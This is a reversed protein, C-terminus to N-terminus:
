WALGAAACLAQYNWVQFSSSTPKNGEQKSIATGVLAMRDPTLELRWFPQRIPPALLDDVRDDILNAFKVKGELGAFLIRKGAPDLPVAYIIQDDPTGDERTLPEAGIFVLPDLANMDQATLVKAWELVCLGATTGCILHNGSPGMSMSFVSQKPLFHHAMQATAQKLDEKSLHGQVEGLFRQAIGSSAAYELLSRKPGPPEPIWVSKLVKLSPLEVVTVLGQSAVALHNGAPHLVMKRGVEPLNITRVLKEGGAEVVTVVRESLSFLTKGDRSFCVDSVARSQPLEAVLKGTELDLVQTKWDGFACGVALWPKTPSAAMCSSRSSVEVGTSNLAGTKVNVRMLQTPTVPGLPNGTWGLLVDSSPLAICWIPSEYFLKHSTKKGVIELVLRGDKAMQKKAAAAKTKATRKAAKEAAQDPIHVFEKWRKIGDREGDQLYEYASVANPLGLIAAFQDFREMEFDFRETDLLKQLKTIEDPKALLHGLAHANGGRPEPNKDSFYTPCSNYRDKLIGREFYWYAFVDDDHVLCHILEQDQLRAALDESIKANQGNDEPFISIWGNIAPAVLFKAQEERALDTVASLVSNVADTRVHISGYHGGM